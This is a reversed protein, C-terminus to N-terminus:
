KDGAHEKVPPQHRVSLNERAFVAQLAQEVLPREALMTERDSAGIYNLDIDVSLRPVAFQFLNLATGGKLVLRDRLYPHARLSGLLELLRAVKEFTRPDFGLKGAQAQLHRRSITM